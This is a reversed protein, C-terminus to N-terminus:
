AGHEEAAFGKAKVVYVGTELTRLQATLQARTGKLKFRPQGSRDVVDFEFVKQPPQNVMVPERLPLTHMPPVKIKVTNSPIGGSCFPPIARATIESGLIYPGPLNVLQTGSALPITTDRSNWKLQIAAGCAPKIDLKVQYADGTNSVYTLRLAQNEDTTQAQTTICFFALLLFIVTKM